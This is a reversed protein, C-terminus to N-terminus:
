CSLRLCMRNQPLIVANLGSQPIMPISAPIGAIPKIALSASISTVGGGTGKIQPAQRRRGSVPSQISGPIAGSSTPSGLGFWLIITGIVIGHLIVIVIGVIVMEVEGLPERCFSCTAEFSSATMECPADRLM